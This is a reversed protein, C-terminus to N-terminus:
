KTGKRDSIYRRSKGSERGRGPIARRSPGCCRELARRPIEPGSDKCNDVREFPVTEEGKRSGYWSYQEKEETHRYQPTHQLVRTPHNGGLPEAGASCEAGDRKKDVKTQGHYERPYRGQAIKVQRRLKM